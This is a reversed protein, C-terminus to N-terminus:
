VLRGGAFGTRNMNLLLPVIKNEEYEKAIVGGADLANRNASTLERVSSSMGPLMPIGNLPMRATEAVMVIYAIDALGSNVANLAEQTNAIEGAPYFEFNIEKNTRATVCAMYPKIGHTVGWHVDPLNTSVSFTAAEVQAAIFCGATALLFVRATIM